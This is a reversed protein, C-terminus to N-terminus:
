PAQIGDEMGQIDSNRIVIGKSSYDAFCVGDGCCHPRAAHFQRPDEARRLHGEPESVHLRDQQLHALGQFGQHPKGAGGTFPQPDLSNVWWYTLGGQMAGYAENNEFQLIPM